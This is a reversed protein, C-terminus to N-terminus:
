SLKSVQMLQIEWAPDADQRCLGSYDKNYITMCHIMIVDGQVGPAKYLAFKTHSNGDNNPQNDTM